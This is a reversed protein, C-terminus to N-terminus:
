DLARVALAWAIASGSLALGGALTRDVRARARAELLASTVDFGDILLNLALAPALLRRDRLEALTFAAPLVQHGGFGRVFLRADPSDDTNPALQAGTMASPVVLYGAGIALRVAGGGLLIYRMRYM